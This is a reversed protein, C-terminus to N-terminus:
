LARRLAEITLILGEDLSVIPNFGLLKRARTIDPCRRAPDGPEIPSEPATSTSNGLRIVRQALERITVEEPMGLNMPAHAGPGAYDALAMIGRVMDTVYCFSRTQSGGALRLPEGRLAAVIFATVVRGDDRAMRPGYTNFIRAIRVEVGLARHYDAALTEAARKGEEYCARSAQTDVRGAYDERQPHAEPDGYVESTSALVFRAGCRKAHEIASLTGNFAVDLTRVPDRRYALPSAPCAMHFILDYEGEIMDRVDHHVLNFAPSARAADLNDLSGTSLDDLATVTDGRALMADCLHSGIFGAGGTVLVRM